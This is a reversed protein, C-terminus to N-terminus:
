GRRLVTGARPPLRGPHGWHGAVTLIQHYRHKPAVRLGLVLGVTQPDPVAIADYHQVGHGFDVGHGDGQEQLPAPRAGGQLSNGFGLLVEDDGPQQARQPPLRGGAVSKVGEV